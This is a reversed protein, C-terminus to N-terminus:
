QEPERYSIEYTELFYLETINLQSKAAKFSLLLINVCMFHVLKVSCLM